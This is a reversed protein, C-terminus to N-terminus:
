LRTLGQKMGPIYCEDFSTFCEEFSTFIDSRVYGDVNGEHSGCLSTDRAFRFPFLM